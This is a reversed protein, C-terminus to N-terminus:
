IEVITSLSIHWCCLCLVFQVTRELLHIIKTFTRVIRKNHQITNNQKNDTDNLYFHKGDTLLIINMM